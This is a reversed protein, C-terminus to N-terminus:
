NNRNFVFFGSRLIVRFRKIAIKNSRFYILYSSVSIRCLRPEFNFLEIVIKPKSVEIALEQIDKLVAYMYGPLLYTTFVRIM